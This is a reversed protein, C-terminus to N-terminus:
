FIGNTSSEETSPHTIGHSNMSSARPFYLLSKCEGILLRLKRGNRSFCCVQQAVAAIATKSTTGTAHSAGGTYLVICVANVYGAVLCLLGGVLGVLFVPRKHNIDHISERQKRQIPPSSSPQKVNLACDLVPPPGLPEVGPLPGGQLATDSTFDPSSAVRRRPQISQAEIKSLADDEVRDSGNVM